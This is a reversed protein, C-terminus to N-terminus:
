RRGPRIAGYGGRPQQRSPIDAYAEDLAANNSVAEDLATLNRADIAPSAIDGDEDLVPM